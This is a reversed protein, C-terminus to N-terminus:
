FNYKENIIYLPRNQVERLIRGIYLSALGIVMIQVGGLLTIVSITTTYGAQYNIFFIKSIVLYVTLLLGTIGVLSGFGVILRLPFDSFSIISEIAMKVRKILNYSSKGVEREKHLVALYGHRFGLWNELGPLYRAKETLLNFKDVFKRNMVRLTTVNLPIDSKTLYNLTIAFIKSTFRNLLPTRREDFLGFVIDYNGEKIFNLLKIIESPPEQMDVNLMGVYDGKANEYGCSLAIHQGFNKSFDIIKVFKRKKAVKKLLLMSDNSSGDNVFILETDNEINDKKLYQRFEKEYQECFSEALYGDNYIPVVFSYFM